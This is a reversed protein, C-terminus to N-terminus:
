NLKRDEAYQLYRFMDDVPNTGKIETGDYDLLNRDEIIAQKIELNTWACKGKRPSMLGKAQGGEKRTIENIADLARQRAQERTIM